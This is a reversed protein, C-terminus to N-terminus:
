LQEDQVLGSRHQCRLFNFLQELGQPPKTFLPTRDQVDAVLQMLNLGKAVRSGNKATALDNSM